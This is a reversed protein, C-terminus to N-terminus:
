DLHGIKMAPQPPLGAKPFSEGAWTERNLEGLIVLKLDNM